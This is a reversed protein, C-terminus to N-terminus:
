NSISSIMDSILITSYYKIWYSPCLKVHPFSSGVETKYFRAWLAMYLRWIEDDLKWICCPSNEHARQERAMAHAGNKGEWLRVLNLAPLTWNMVEQTYLPMVWSPKTCYYFKNRYYESMITVHLIQRSWREIYDSFWWVLQHCAFYPEKSYWETM